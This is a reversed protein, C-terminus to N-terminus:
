KRKGEKKKFAISYGIYDQHVGPFAHILRQLNPGDAKMMCAMILARLSNDPTALELAVLYPHAQILENKNSTM